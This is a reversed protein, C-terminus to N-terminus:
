KIDTVPYGAAEIAAKVADKDTRLTDITVCATGDNHSVASSIVGEVGDIASKVRAECHPCMMGEIYFTKEMIEFDGIKENVAGCEDSGSPGTSENECIIAKCGPDRDNYRAAAEFGARVESAAALHPEAERRPAAESDAKAEQATSQARKGGYLRLRLANCVVFLSSFSMALAGFMPTLEWGLLPIFVGAALPIGLANYFFAWFLNEKINILTRKSISIAEAVDSLRSGSIVIDASDIAIDAGAGIAIGIDARMIAPADNIGDGVMIVKGGGLRSQVEREKGDPLVGAIVEDVGLEAGIADAVMQNDGTLLLTKIGGSRLACVASRSDAKLTDRVAIMGIYVGDSAFFLVTKGERSLQEYREKVDDSVFAHAEIFSLKGATLTRGNLEGRIGNGSLAEFADPESLKIGLEAARTVVAGALPHESASELSAALQLLGREDLGCPVVDTVSPKGVTVTGTKDFIVTKAGACNELAEANKFLIGRRAGVGNGVMIAVPTALGLACPCSIVLVSIGRALAYGFSADFILWVTCTVAAIAMVVPVFIGSARDALKAIPAKTASADSVMKIVDSIATDEGVKLAECKLFGNTNVTACLVRDGVTKDAPISEGTLASECVAGEGQIVVGDAPISDGPRVVFVDGVKIDAIPIEREEGDVIVRATRPSLDILEAIADTTREKAASELMKGVTILVLIMASSEFYLGHLHAHAAATNGGATEILIMVTLAASWVFSAGSGLSVLTDMNPSRAILAKAGSVFFKNNILMVSLALLLQLLAVASPNRELVGPMPLALMNAGMSIYMLPLLLGASILLRKLIRKKEGKQLSNNENHPTKEGKVRAGYGAAEVASIILKDEADGEIDMTATLLNVSCSRVGSLASVAREVRASCAACSMGSIDFRRKM